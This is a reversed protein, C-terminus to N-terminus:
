SSRGCARIAIYLIKLSFGKRILSLRSNKRYYSPASKWLNLAFNWLHAAFNWLYAYFNGLDFCFNWLDGRNGFSLTPNKM